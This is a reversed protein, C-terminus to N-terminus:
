MDLDLNREEIQINSRVLHREVLSWTTWVREGHEVDWARMGDRQRLCESAAHNLDEYDRELLAPIIARVEGILQLRLRATAIDVIGDDERIGDHVRVDIGVGKWSTGGDEGVHRDYKARITMIRSNGLAPSKAYADVSVDDASDHISVRVVGEACTLGYQLVGFLSEAYRLNLANRALDRGRGEILETFWKTDDETLDPGEEHYFSWRGSEGRERIANFMLSERPERKLYTTVMVDYPTSDEPHVALTAVGDVAPGYPLLIIGAENPFPQESLDM